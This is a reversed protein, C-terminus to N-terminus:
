RLRTLVDVGGSSGAETAQTAVCCAGAMSQWNWQFGPLREHLFGGADM